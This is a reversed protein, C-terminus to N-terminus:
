PPNEKKNKFILSTTETAAAIVLAYHCQDANIVM